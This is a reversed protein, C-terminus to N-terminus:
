LLTSTQKSPNLYDNIIKNTSCITSSMTAYVKSQTVVHSSVQVNTQEVEAVFLRNPKFKQKKTHLPRGKPKDWAVKISTALDIM